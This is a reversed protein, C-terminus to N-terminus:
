SRDGSLPRPDRETPFCDKRDTEFQAALEARDREAYRPCASPYGADGHTKHVAFDGDVIIGASRYRAGPSIEEGCATCLHPKRAVHCKDWLTKVDPWHDDRDPIEAAERFAWFSGSSMM